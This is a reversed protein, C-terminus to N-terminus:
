GKIWQWIESKQSDTKQMHLSIHFNSVIMEFLTCGIQPARFMASYDMVSQHLTIISIKLSGEKLVRRTPPFVMLFTSERLFEIKAKAFLLFLSHYKILAVTRKRGM